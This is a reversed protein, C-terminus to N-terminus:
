ASRIEGLTAGHIGANALSEVLEDTAFAQPPCGLAVRYDGRCKGLVLVEGGLFKVLPNAFFMRINRTRRDVARQKQENLSVEQAGDVEPFILRSVIWVKVVFGRVIM